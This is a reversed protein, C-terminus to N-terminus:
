TKETVWSADTDHFIAKFPFQYRINKTVTTPDMTVNAFKVTRADSDTAAPHFCHSCSGLAAASNFNFNYLAVNSVWWRDTRPTIIGRPSGVDTEMNAETRGVVLAGDLYGVMEASNVDREIEIGALRNDAVTINRFIVAGINGGM